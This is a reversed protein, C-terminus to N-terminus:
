LIQYESKRRTKQDVSSRMSVIINESKTKPLNANKKEQVNFMYRNKVIKGHYVIVVSVVVVRFELLLFM